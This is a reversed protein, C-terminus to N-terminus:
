TDCAQECVTVQIGRKIGPIPRVLVNLGKSQLSVPLDEKASSKGIIIILRYVLDDAQYWVPRQIGRESRNYTRVTRDGGKRYLCISFDDRTTIKGVEITSSM